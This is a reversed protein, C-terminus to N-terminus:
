KIASIEPTPTPQVRSLSLPSANHVNQLAITKKVQALGKQSTPNLPQLQLSTTFAARSASFLRKKLYLWGLGDYADSLRNDEKLAAQFMEIALDYRKASILIRGLKSRITTVIEYPQNSMSDMRTELISESQPNIVLSTELFSQAEEFKKLQFLNYGMGKYAESKNPQDRLAIQFMDMSKQTNGNQFYVWGLHNYIQWGFRERKLLLAFQKEMALEPDLSIAKLFYEIGLDPDNKRYQIWGMGMYLSARLPFKELEREFHAQSVSMKRSRLISWDLKEASEEDEPEVAYFKELYMAARGFNGKQYYSLGMGRIADLKYDKRSVTKQFKEIARDYHKKHYQSWGLRHTAHLLLSDSKGSQEQIFDFYIQSAEKYDRENYAKDAQGLSPQLKATLDDLGKQAEANDPDMALAQRFLKKAAKPQDMALKVNGLHILPKPWQPFQSILHNDKIEAIRYKGHIFYYDAHALKGLKIKEIQAIGKAVGIFGPRLKDINKFHEEALPIAGAQLLSWAAGNLADISDDIENGQFAVLAKRYSENNYFEWASDLASTARLDYALIEDPYRPHDMPLHFISTTDSALIDLPIGISETSLSKWYDILSETQHQNYIRNFESKAEETRRQALHIFGRAKHIYRAPGSYKEARSFADWSLEYKQQAFLSWGLGILADPRKPTSALIREFSNQAKAYHKQYFHVWPLLKMAEPHEPIQVLIKKLYYEADAYKKVGFHNRAFQLDMSEQTVPALLVIPKVIDAIGPLDDIGPVTSKIWTAAKNMSKCALMPGVLLLIFVLIKIRGILM